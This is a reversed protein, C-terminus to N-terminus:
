VEVFSNSEGNPPVLLTDSFPSTLSNKFISLRHNPPTVIYKKNITSSFRLSKFESLNNEQVLLNMTGKCICTYANYINSLKFYFIDYKSKLM